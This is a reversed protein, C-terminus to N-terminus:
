TLLKKLRKKKQSYFKAIQEFMYESVEEGRLARRVYSADVKAAAAIDNVDQPTRIKEWKNLIEASIKM